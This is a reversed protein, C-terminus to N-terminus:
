APARLIAFALRRLEDLDASFETGWDDLTMAEHLLQDTDVSLEPGVPPDNIAVDLRVFTADADRPALRGAAIADAAWLALLAIANETAIAPASRYQEIIAEAARDLAATVPLNNIPM